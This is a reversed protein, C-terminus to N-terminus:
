QYIAANNVLYDIAGYASLTADAMATTSEPSAVDVQVFRARGGSAAIAEAVRRGQDANVDAVVVSAGEAALATAYAEGIGQGAGTVIAVKDRFRMRDETMGEARGGARADGPHRGPLRRAAGDGGRRGGRRGTGRGDHRPAADHGLAEVRRTAARARR